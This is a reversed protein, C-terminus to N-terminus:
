INPLPFVTWGSAFTPVSSLGVGMNLDVIFLNNENEDTYDNPLTNAASYGYVYWEGSSAITDTYVVARPVFSSRGTPEQATKTSGDGYNSYPAWINFQEKYVRWKVSNGKETPWNSSEGDSNNVAGPGLAPCRGTNGIYKWPGIESATLVNYTRPHYRLMKVGFEDSGDFRNNVLEVNFFKVKGDMNVHPSDQTTYVTFWLRAAGSFHSNEIVAQWYWFGDDSAFPIIDIKNQFRCNLAYIQNVRWTLNSQVEVDILTLSKQKNYSDAHADNLKIAGLFSCRVMDIATESPDIGNAGSISIDSNRAAFSDLGSINNNLSIKSDIVSLSMGSSSNVLVESVTMNRIRFVTGSLSLTGTIVGNKVETYRSFSFDKVSRSQLDVVSSTTGPNLGDDVDRVKLWVDASNFKGIHYSCGNVTLVEVHHGESILGLDWQSVNLQLFLGDDIEMSGFKVYDDKPSFIKKGVFSCQIFNFYTSSSTGFSVRKPWVIVAGSVSAIETLISTSFHNAEDVYMYKAGCGWFGSASRFWASHAESTTDTFRFDAIYDTVPGLARARPLNFSAGTFKAGSDFAVEKTTSYAVSSTYDGPLFRVVPATKQLFSGVLQPYTLLANINAENSGPVVGYVSSPMMEDGWLLIWRGTDSVHSGVVYGGDIDNESDKDWYYTRPVCDGVAYYGVVNVLGSEPSADMLEAITDVSTRVALVGPDFGIEFHDFQEFDSDPSEVSMQGEAGVYREVKVDVIAADFFLTADLRGADNLLQPNAAQTFTDGELTFVDLIDDSDHVFLTVRGVLPMGDLGVISEPSFGIKM